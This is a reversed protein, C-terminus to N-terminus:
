GALVLVSLDDLQDIRPSPMKALDGALNPLGGFRAVLLDPARGKECSFQPLGSEPQALVNGPHRRREDRFPAGALRDDPDHALVVRQRAERLFHHGLLLRADGVAVAVGASVIEKADAEASAAM